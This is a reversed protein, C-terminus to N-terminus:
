KILDQKREEAFNVKFGVHIFNQKPYWILQDYSIKGQNKANILSKYINENNSRTTFDVALGSMHQSTKSGGVAKNLESCRFWSNVSCPLGVLMRVYDMRAATYKINSSQIEDPINKINPFSASVRTENSNFFNSIKSM